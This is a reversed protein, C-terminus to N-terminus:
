LARLAFEVAARGDLEAGRRRAEEYPGDGLAARLRAGLERLFEEDQGFIRHGSTTSRVAGELVAAERHRGLHDLLSAVSRLMTWQTSWMGARRWQMLLERYAAAARASDGARADLSALTSGALCTAFAAHKQEGMTLARTLRDRARDPNTALDSEGACYWVYAAYATEADGIEALLCETRELARPDQSYGLPLLQTASAMLWQAHDSGAAADIAQQYWDTAEDLHGDILASTGMVTLAEAPPEDTHRCIELAERSQSRMLDIDGRTWAAYSANVRVRSAFRSRNEPDARIVRESWALVDPRLRIIGYDLLNAVLEGAHEVAGNGLFWGLASRLEPVATDIELISRDPDLLRTDATRVWQLYHDAHRGATEDLREGRSLQDRGFARLTELLVYRRGTRMVLSREVLHSLAITVEDRDLDCVAAADEADFSAAFVSVNVFVEQLAEDLLSFSWSVAARLSGHRSSTRYGTSLLAFRRDLGALIEDLDHTLLRAAALEIALPLGDLRRVIEAIKERQGADDRLGPAVARARDLFLEVAPSADGEAPLTRVMWVQEGGVRLRERSSVVLRVGPCHALLREVLDAAADLVHECNDLLLVLEAAAVMRAVHETVQTGPRADIGLANAVVDAASDNDATALECLVVPRDLHAADLHRAVELLLRTKGVGGPGVLSVLRASEALAAIDAASEDRGVLSTAPVPLATTARWGPGPAGALLDLHQATL